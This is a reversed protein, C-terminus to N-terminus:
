SLNVLVVHSHREYNPDMDRICTGYFDSFNPCGFFLSIIRFNSKYLNEM